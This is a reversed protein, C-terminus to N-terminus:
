STTLAAYKSTVDSYCSRACSSRRKRTILLILLKKKVTLSKEITQLAHCSGHCQSSGLLICLIEAALPELSQLLSYAM